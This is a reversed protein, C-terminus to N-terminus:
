LRAMWLVLGFALYRRTLNRKVVPYNGRDAAAVVAARTGSNPGPASYVKIGVVDQTSVLSRCAGAVTASWNM